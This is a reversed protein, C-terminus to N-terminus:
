QKDQDESCSRLLYLAFLALILTMGNLDKLSSSLALNNSLVLSLLPQLFGPYFFFFVENNIIQWGWLLGWEWIQSPIVRGGESILPFGVCTGPGCDVRSWLVNELFTSRPTGESPLGLTPCPSVGQMCGSTIRRGVALPVCAFMVTSPIGPKCLPLVM